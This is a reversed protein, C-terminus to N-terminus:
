RLHFSTERLFVFESSRTEHERESTWMILSGNSIYNFYHESHAADIFRCFCYCKSKFKGPQAPDSESALHVHAIGQIGTIHSSCSIGVKVGEKVLSAYVEQGTVLERPLQAICLTRIARTPQGPVFPPPRYTGDGPKPERIEGKHEKFIPPGTHSHHAELM